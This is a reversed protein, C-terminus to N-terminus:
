RVIDSRGIEGIISVVAKGVNSYQNLVKIYDDITSTKGVKHGVVQIVAFPVDHIKSAVAVGGVESSFVINENFGLVKNDIAIDNIEEKNNVHANRAIFPCVNAHVYTRNSLAEEISTSIETSALFSQLFGPIQGKAVNAVDCLNVDGCVVQKCICVDGIKLSPSYAQCQGVVIVLTILYQKIVHSVVSASVYSTYMDKLLMVKQNYIDGTYAGFKNLVLEEKKNRLVSEFYLIDDNSAGVILIM